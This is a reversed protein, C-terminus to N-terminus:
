GPQADRDDTTDREHRGKWQTSFARSRAGGTWLGKAAKREM